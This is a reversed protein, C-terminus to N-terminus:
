VRLVCILTADLDAAEGDFAFRPDFDIDITLATRISLEFKKVAFCAPIEEDAPHLRRSRSAVDDLEQRVFLREIAKRVVSGRLPELVLRESKVADEPRPIAFRQGIVLNRRAPLLIRRPHAREDFSASAADPYQLIRLLGRLLHFGVRIKQQS